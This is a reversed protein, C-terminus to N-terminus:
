EVVEAHGPLDVICGYHQIRPTISFRSSNMIGFLELGKNPVVNDIKMTNLLDLAEKGQGHFALRAIM